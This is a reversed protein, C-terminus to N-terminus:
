EAIIVRRTEKWDGGSVEWERWWSARGTQGVTADVRFAWRDSEDVLRVGGVPGIGAARSSASLQGAKGRSRAARVVSGVDVGALRAAEDVLDIPATNINIRIAVEQVRGFSVTAALARIDGVSRPYVLGNTATSGNAFSDPGPRVATWEPVVSTKEEILRRIQEPIMGVLPSRETVADVPIMGRLDCALVRVGVTRGDALTWSEDLMEILPAEAGLPLSCAPATRRLWDRILATSGNTALDDAIRAENLRRREVRSITELRVIGVVLPLTFAVVSLVLLLAFGRRRGDGATMINLDNTRM